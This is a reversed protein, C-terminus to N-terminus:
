SPTTAGITTGNITTATVPVTSGAPGVIGIQTSGIIVEIKNGADLVINTGAKFEAVGLGNANIGTATITGGVFMDKAVSAGGAVVLSGIGIGTSDTTANVALSQIATSGTVVLDSFSGTGTVIPDVVTITGKPTGDADGYYLTAPADAPVSIVLKGTTKGQATAGTTITDDTATHAIGVNYLTTGDTNILNFTISSLTFEISPNDTAAVTFDDSALRFNGSVETASYDGSTSSAGGGVYQLSTVVVNGANDVTFGPSKYGFESEFQRYEIAM